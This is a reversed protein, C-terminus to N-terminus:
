ISIDNSEHADTRLMGGCIEQIHESSTRIRSKLIEDVRCEGMLQDARRCAVRFRDQLSNERRITDDRSKYEVIESGLAGVATEYLMEVLSVRKCAESISRKRIDNMEAGEYKSLLTEFDALTKEWYSLQNTAQGELGDSM